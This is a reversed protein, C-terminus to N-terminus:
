NPKRELQRAVEEIQDNLRKRPQIRESVAGNREGSLLARARALADRALAPRGITFFLNALDVEILTAQDRRVLNDGDRALFEAMTSRLGLLTAEAPAYRHEAADIRALARATVVLAYRYARNAPDRDLLGQKLKREVLRETRAESYRAEDFWSDAVWAHANAVKSIWLEKGPELKALALFHALARSFHARAEVPRHLLLNVSGLANEAYALEAGYRPDGPKIRNLLKAQMLYNRYAALARALDERKEAVRGIWYESQAHDFIREPDGSQAALLAATTRAAEQFQALAHDLRGRTVDDEGMAHLIRARRELEESSLTSLDQQAYHALARENVAALVKLSATDKLRDRLDTLMFEVLGEADARQRDAERRADLAIIALVAMVLTTAIAVLTVATVRRIQRAADRQVLADLGVGTLGAVLKLFGLRQGDGSRRLDAALPEGGAACLAPPFCEVPDGAVIAALVPRGPNLERFAEIERAVWPSGAAHPSCLVILSDSAALAARVKESLDGAAPLEDRDRFIPTLRAPVPGHDGAGGALRRPVRYSELRRHLARAAAADKHSYSIFAAYHAAASSIMMAGWSGSPSGSQM